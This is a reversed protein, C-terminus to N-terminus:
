RRIGASASAVPSRYTAATCLVIVLDGTLDGALKGALGAATPSRGALAQNPTPEASNPAGAALPASATAPGGKSDEM